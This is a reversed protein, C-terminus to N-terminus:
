ALPVWRGRVRKTLVAAQVEASQALRPTARHAVEIAERADEATFRVVISAVGGRVQVQNAEVNAFEGVADAAAPQVEAPSVGPMVRGIDFCVRFSPM